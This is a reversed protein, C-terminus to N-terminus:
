RRLKRFLRNDEYQMDDFLGIVGGSRNRNVIPEAILFLYYHREDIPPPSPPHLPVDVGHIQLVVRKRLRVARLVAISLVRVM